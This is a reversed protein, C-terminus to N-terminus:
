HAGSGGLAAPRAMGARELIAPIEQECGPAMVHVGNVGPIERVQEIVEACIGLGEGAVRGEPVARLRRDVEDPIHVGPLGTRMHDLVPLSRVLGVGALFRCHGDIGLDRVEAMWRAFAPVDFVFQAWLGEDEGRWYSLWASHGARRHDVPRQLLLLDAVRGEHRAREYAVLWVCRTGPFVECSGDAGVGGCPGNRLQKPCSAPCAYGTVPLTCQGCMRCGFAAGKTVQEAATFARYGAPSRALV